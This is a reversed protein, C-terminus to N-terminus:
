KMLRDLQNEIRNNLESTHVTGPNWRTDAPRAKAEKRRRNMEQRLEM